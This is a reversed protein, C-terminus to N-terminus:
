NGFDNGQNVCVGELKVLSDTDPMDLIRKVYTDWHIEGNKAKIETYDFFIENM